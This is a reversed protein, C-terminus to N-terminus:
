NMCINKFTKGLMTLNYSKEKFSISGNLYYDDIKSSGLKYHLEKKRKEVKEQVDSFASTLKFSSYDFGVVTIEEFKMLNLRILNDISAAIESTSYHSNFYLIVNEIQTLFSQHDKLELVINVAPDMGRLTKFIVADIPSMEKIIQVFSPRATSFNDKNCASALLKVYMSRIEKDSGYIPFDNFIPVIIDKRPKILNETPILKLRENFENKFSDLDRAYDLVMEKLENYQTDDLNNSRAYEYQAKVDKAQEIVDKGAHLYFQANLYDAIGGQGPTFLAKNSNILVSTATSAIISSILTLM